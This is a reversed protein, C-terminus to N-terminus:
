STLRSELDLEAKKVAGPAGEARQAGEDFDQM